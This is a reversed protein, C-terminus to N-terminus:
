VNIGWLIKETESLDRIMELLLSHYKKMGEEYSQSTAHSAAYFSAHSAAHSAVYTAYSATFPAACSAHSATSAASAAYFAASSAYSTSVTTYSVAWAKDRAVAVEKATAKGKLWAEVMDLCAKIVAKDEDRALHYVDWAVALAYRVVFKQPLPRLLREIEEEYNM